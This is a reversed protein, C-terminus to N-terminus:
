WAARPAIFKWIVSNQALFKHAKCCSLARWVEVLELNAAQLIKANDSYVTHPLGRRGIFHQLAVLFKATPMDTCLELHVARNSACTLLAIHRRLKRGWGQM